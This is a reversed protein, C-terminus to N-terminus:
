RAINGIEVREFEHRFSAGTISSDLSCNKMNYQTSISFNLVLPSAIIRSFHSFVPFPLAKIFDIIVSQNYQKVHWITFM